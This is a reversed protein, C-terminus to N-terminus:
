SLKNKSLARRFVDYSKLRLGKKQETYSMRLNMFSNYLAKQAWKSLCNRAESHEQFFRQRQCNRLNTQSMEITIGIRSVLRFSSFKNPTNGCNRRKSQGNTDSTMALSDSSMMFIDCVLWFSVQHAATHTHYPPWKFPPLWLHPKRVLVNPKSAMGHFTAFELHRMTAGFSSNDSLGSSHVEISSM